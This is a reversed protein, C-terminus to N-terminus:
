SSLTVSFKENPVTIEKMTISGDVGERLELLMPAGNAMWRSMGVDIVIMRDDFHKKFTTAPTHGVVLRDADVHKLVAELDEVNKEPHEDLRRWVSEYLARKALSLVGRHPSGLQKGQLQDM